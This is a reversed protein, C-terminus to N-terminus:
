KPTHAATVLGTEYALQFLDADREIGLKRMARGKQASITQKTRNLREAIESVSLGSVFLRVVEMERNTLTRTQSGTASSFEARLEDTERLSTRFYTAGAFVAHVASILHGTDFSKSLVSQVGLKVIEQVLGVNEIMTFVVVRLTPYTRRLYALLTLGDGYQGGPMAYDTILVDCPTSNLLKVLEGSDAATGIVELTPIASLDHKLGSLVAPHDDALAIRIKVNSM